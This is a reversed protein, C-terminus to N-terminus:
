FLYHISLAPQCSSSNLHLLSEDIVFAKQFGYVLFYLPLDILEMQLVDDQDNEQNVSESKFLHRRHNLYYSTPLDDLYFQQFKFELDFRSQLM